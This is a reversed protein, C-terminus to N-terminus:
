RRWAVAGLWWGRMTGRGLLGAALCATAIVLGDQNCSSALWLSIPLLLVGFLVGRLRRAAGLAALGLALYTAANALRAVLIARFPGAGAWRAAQMGAAGPVYFLPAYAATNPASIFEPPNGWRMRALEDLRAASLKRAALVTGAPFAFGAELLVSHATVGADPVGADEGEAPSHRYGIVDGQLLSEMRVLHAVEDPTDGTPVTVALFALVPLACLVFLAPLLLRAM